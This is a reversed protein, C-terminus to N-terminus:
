KKVPGKYIIGDDPMKKMYGSEVGAKFVEKINSEIDAAPVVDLRYRNGKLAMLFAEKPVGAAKEIIAAAEEHHTPLWKALDAFTAYLKPILDKNKEIWDEHASLCLFGRQPAGHIAEWQHVYEIMKFKGPNTVLM